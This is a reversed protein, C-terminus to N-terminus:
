RLPRVVLEERCRTEDFSGTRSSLQFHARSTNKAQSDLSSIVTARDGQMTIRGGEIVALHTCWQPIDCRNNVTILVSRGTAPLYALCSDLEACGAFDVGDYPNEIILLEPAQTIASLIMLKRNEGSSLQRLGKELCHELNFAQILDVQKEPTSLFHKAPTGPDPTGLFNTEDNRLEKEYLEQQRAFSIVAIGASQANRTEQDSDFFRPLQAIGSRNSGYFCWLQAPLIEFEEIVLEPSHLQPLIM